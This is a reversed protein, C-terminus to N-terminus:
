DVNHALRQFKFILFVLLLVMLYFLMREGWYTERYSSGNGGRYLWFLKPIKLQLTWNKPLTKSTKFMEASNHVDLGTLKLSSIARDYYSVM